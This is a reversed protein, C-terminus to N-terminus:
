AAQVSVKIDKMMKVLHRLGGDVREPKYNNLQLGKLMNVTAGQLCLLVM